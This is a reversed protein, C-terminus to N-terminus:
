SGQFVRGRSTPVSGPALNHLWQRLSEIDWLLGREALENLHRHQDPDKVKRRTGQVCDSLARPGAMSMQAHTSYLHVIDQLTENSQVVTGNLRLLTRIQHNIAFKGEKSIHQIAEKKLKTFKYTLDALTDDYEVQDAKGLLIRFPRPQKNERIFHTIEDFVANTGKSRIQDFPVVFIIVNMLGRFLRAMKRIEPNVDDSGPCDCFVTALGPPTYSQMETTRSSATLGPNFTDRSAATLTTLLTSKGVGTTGEVSIYLQSIASRRLKGIKAVDFLWKSWSITAIPYHKSRYIKDAEWQQNRKQSRPMNRLGDDLRKRWKEQTDRDGSNQYDPELLDTITFEPSTPESVQLRLTQISVQLMKDFGEQVQVTHNTLYEVVLGIWNLALLGTYIGFFYSLYTWGSAALVSRGVTITGSTIASVVLNNFKICFDIPPDLQTLIVTHCFRMILIVRGSQVSARDIRDESDVERSYLERGFSELTEVFTIRKSCSVVKSFVGTSEWGKGQPKGGLITSFFGMPLKNQEQFAQIVKDLFDQLEDVCPESKLATIGSPNEIKLPVTENSSNWISEVIKSANAFNKKILSPTANAVLSDVVEATARADETLVGAQLLAEQNQSGNRKLNQVKAIQNAFAIIMANRISEYTTQFHTANLQPRQLRSVELPLVRGFSDHLQLTREIADAMDFLAEGPTNPLMSYTIELTTQSADITSKGFKKESKYIESNRWKPGIEFSVNKTCFQLLDPSIPCSIVVKTPYVVGKCGKIIEPLPLLDRCFKTSTLTTSLDTSIDPLEKRDTLTKDLCRNYHEMSHFRLDVKPTQPIQRSTIIAYCQIIGTSDGEVPDILYIVGYHAFPQRAEAWSQFLKLLIGFFVKADPWITLVKHTADMVEKAKQSAQNLIFPVIDDRNIIHHFNKTFCKPPTATTGFPELVMMSPAGFTIVSIRPSLNIESEEQSDSDSTVKTNWVNRVSSIDSDETIAHYAAITAVAGGLSHGCIVVKYRKALQRILESYYKARLLFGSHFKSALAPTSSQRVDIDTWADTTSYSGRFGLYLVQLRVSWAILPASDPDVKDLDGPGSITSSLSWVDSIIDNKKVFQYKPNKQLINSLESPTEYCLLSVASAGIFTLRKFAADSSSDLDGGFDIYDIPFDSSSSM